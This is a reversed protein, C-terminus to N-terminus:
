RRNLLRLAAEAGGVLQIHPVYFEQVLAEDSLKFEDSRATYRVPARSLAAAFLAWWRAAGAAELEVPGRKPLSLWRLATLVDQVRAADDSVNYGLFLGDTRDRPEHASGTQFADILLVPRKAKLWGQVKESKLASDMGNPDLYLAPAGKGNFYRYPVHDGTGPR